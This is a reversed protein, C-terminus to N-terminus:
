AIIKKKDPQTVDSQYYWKAGKYNDRLHKCCERISRACTTNVSRAAEKANKFTDIYKNNIYKNISEKVYLSKVYYKDFADNVYRWVYGYASNKKGNCVALITSSASLGKLNLSKIIENVNEFNCLLNGDISYQSIAKLHIRKLNDKNFNGEYCWHYGNSSANRNNCCSNISSVDYEYKDYIDNFCEFIELLTGTEIDRKEIRKLIEPTRYTNFVDPYKRWVYNGASLVEGNCCKMINGNPITINQSSLYAVAEQVFEYVKILNGYFDYQYIKPYRSKYWNIEKETLPDDAYRFIRNQIRHIKKRKCCSSIDSASFDTSDSANIISPYINIIECFMSYEIVSKETFKNPPNNQGGLTQNYGNHYADFYDIWFVERENLIDLLKSKDDSEYKEIKSIKFHKIGHKRISAYLYYNLNKSDKIHEKWREEITRSTQGIYIKDNIDNVIKYIYGEYMDTEKNFSM